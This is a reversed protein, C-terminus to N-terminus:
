GRTQAAVSKLWARPTLAPVPLKGAFHRANWSLFATLTSAHEEVVIAIEADKLAMRKEM